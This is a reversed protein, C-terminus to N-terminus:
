YVLFVKVCCKVDDSRWVVLSSPSPTTENSRVSLLLFPSPFPLLSTLYYTLLCLFGNFVWGTRLGAM